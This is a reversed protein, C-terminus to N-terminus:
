GTQSQESAWFLKDGIQEYMSEIASKLLQSGDSNYGVAKSKAEGAYRALEQRDGDLLRAHYRIHVEYYTYHGAYYKGSVHEYNVPAFWVEIGTLELYREADHDDVVYADGFGAVFGRVVTNTFDHVVFDDKALFDSALNTSLLLSIRQDHHPLHLVPRPNTGGAVGGSADFFCGTTLLAFAAAVLSHRAFPHMSAAFGSLGSRM